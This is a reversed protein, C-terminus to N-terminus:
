QPALDRLFVWFKEDEEVRTDYYDDDRTRRHGKGKVLQVMRADAEGRKPKRGRVDKSIVYVTCGPKLEEEIEKNITYPFYWCDRGRLGKGVHRNNIRDILKPNPNM